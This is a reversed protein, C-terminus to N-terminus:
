EEEEVDFSRFAKEVGGVILALRYHGVPYITDWPAVDDDDPGHVVKSWNTTEFPDEPDDGAPPVTAWGPGFEAYGAGVQRKQTLTALMMEPGEGDVTISRIGEPQNPVIEIEWGSVGFSALPMLVVM